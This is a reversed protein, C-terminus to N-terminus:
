PGRNRSYRVEDLFHDYSNSSSYMANSFITHKLTLILVALALRRTQFYIDPYLSAPFFSRYNQNMQWGEILGIHGYISFM